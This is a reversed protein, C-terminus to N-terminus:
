LYLELVPMIRATKSPRFMHHGPTINDFLHILLNEWLIKYQRKTPRYGSDQYRCSYVAWIGEARRYCGEVEIGGGRPNVNM